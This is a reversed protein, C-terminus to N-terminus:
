DRQGAPRRSPRSPHRAATAAGPIVRRVFVIEDNWEKVAVSFNRLRPPHKELQTLEQYHTAFLTRPGRDADRHLHEVVAWAISLGDYTSTGRGIEDLIILSRDTAHNLINATEDADVTFTTCRTESACYKKSSPNKFDLTCRHTGAPLAGAVVFGL